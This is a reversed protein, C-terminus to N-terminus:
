RVGPGRGQANALGDGVRELGGDEDGVHKDGAGDEGLGPDLDGAGRGTIDSLLELLLTETLEDNM